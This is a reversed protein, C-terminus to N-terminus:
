RKFKTNCEGSWIWHCSLCVHHKSLLRNKQQSSHV